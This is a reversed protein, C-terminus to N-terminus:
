IWLCVASTDYNTRAFREAKEPLQFAETVALFYSIFLTYEKCLGDKVDQIFWQKEEHM